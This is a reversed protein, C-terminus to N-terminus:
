GAAASGAAGAGAPGPGARSAVAAGVVGTEAGRQLCTPWPSSEGAGGPAQGGQGASWLVATKM